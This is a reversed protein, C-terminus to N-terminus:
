SRLRALEQLFPVEQLMPAPLHTWTAPDPRPYRSHTAYLAEPTIIWDTVLASSLPECSLEVVQCTHVVTMVPTELQILGFDALVLWELDFYSPSLGVRVGQKNLVSAGSVLLQPHQAPRTATLAYPQGYVELGDLTAAFAEQGPPVAEHPLWFFGRGLGYSPIVLDKGAQLSLTRLAALSNDPTVLLTNAAEYEPTRAIRDACRESGAFDPIFQNFDWHFRSDPRAVQLLRQWVQQRIKERANM